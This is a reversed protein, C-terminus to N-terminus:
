GARLRATTAGNIAAVKAMLGRGTDAPATAIRRLEAVLREDPAPTM